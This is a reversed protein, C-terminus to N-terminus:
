SLLIGRIEKFINIAEFGIWSQGMLEVPLGPDDRLLTIYENIVKSFKEIKDGDKSLIEHWKKFLERYKKDLASKGWVKEILVERDGFTHDSEFAQIYQEEAKGTVLDKLNQIVPHPTLWFSRHWPGLGWGQMERRLRDRLERKSEPIEYSIIRWKLDWKLKLFRFFPFEFSLEEFGKETLVYEEEKESTKKIANEKLLLSLTTKTKQNLSYDFIKQVNEDLKISKFEVDSLLFLSLIIKTRREKIGM